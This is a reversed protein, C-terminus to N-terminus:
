RQRNLQALKAKTRKIEAMRQKDTMIDGLRVWGERVPQKAQTTRKQSSRHTSQSRHSHHHHHHKQPQEESKLTYAAYLALAGTAVIAVPTVYPSATTAFNQINPVVETWANQATAIVNQAVNAAAKTLETTAVIAAIAAYAEAAGKVVKILGSADQNSAQRSQMSKDKVRSKQTSHKLSNSTKSRTNTKNTNDSFVSGVTNKIFSIM